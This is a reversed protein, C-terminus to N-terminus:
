AVWSIPLDVRLIRVTENARKAKHPMAHPKVYGDSLSGFFM